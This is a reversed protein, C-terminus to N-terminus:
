INRYSFDKNNDWGFKDDYIVIVSIRTIGALNTM